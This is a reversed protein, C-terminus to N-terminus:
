DLTSAVERAVLVTEWEAEDWARQASGLPARCGDVPARVASVRGAADEIWVILSDHQVADCTEARPEDAVAYAELLESPDDVLREVYQVKNLVGQVDHFDVRCRRVERTEEPVADLHMAPLSPCSLLAHPHTIPILPTAVPSPAATTCGALLLVAVPLVIRRM